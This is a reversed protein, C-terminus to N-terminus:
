KPIWSNGERKYGYEEAKEDLWFALQIHIPMQDNKGQRLVEDIDMMVFDVRSVKAKLQSELGQIYVLVPDINGERLKAEVMPNLLTYEGGNKKVDEMVAGIEGIVFRSANTSSVQSPSDTKKSDLPVPSTKAGEMVGMAVIGTAVYPDIDKKKVCHYDFVISCLVMGAQASELYDLGHEKMIKNYTSQYETQIQALDMLPKDKEPFETVISKSMVDIGMKKCYHAFINLLKPYAQNVEESLVVVGLEFDKKNIARFLSTGALRATISLVTGAHPYGRLLPMKDQFLKLFEMAADYQKKQATDTQAAQKQQVKKKSRKFFNLPM